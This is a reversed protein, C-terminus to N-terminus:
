HKDKAAPNPITAPCHDLAAQVNEVCGSGADHVTRKYGQLEAFFADAASSEWVKASMSASAGRLREDAASAVSRASTLAQQLAARRPNPLTAPVDDGSM